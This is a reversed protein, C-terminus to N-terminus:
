YLPLSKEKSLNLSVYEETAPKPKLVLDKRM